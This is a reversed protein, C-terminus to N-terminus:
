RQQRDLPQESSVLRVTRVAERARLFTQEQAMMGPEPCAMGHVHRSPDRNSRHRTRSRLACPTAAAM